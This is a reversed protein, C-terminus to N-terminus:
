SRLFEKVAEGWVPGRKYWHIQPASGEKLGDIASAMEEGLGEDKIMQLPYTYTHVAFVLAKTHPLRHLTQRECRLLTTDVDLEGVKIEEDVVKKREEDGADKRGHTMGFAAFLPTDLTVSWNVRQVFKGVELRAFFRDMSKELKEAYGPVPTHIEALRRGLKKSLDFGAPFHVTYAHLVYKEDEGDADDSPVTKEPLLIIFDEDVWTGLTELAKRSTEPSHPPLEIPIQKGTVKSELVPVNGKFDSDRTTTLRFMTPYRSPLYVGLVFEYLEYIAAQVRESDGKVGVVTDHYKELLQARLALRDKYTKDMQLFDSPDLQRLGMTLHYKPKFPRFSLPETAEWNFGPLPEIPPYGNNANHPTNEPSNPDLTPNRNWYGFLWTGLAIFVIILPNREIYFILSDIYGHHAM